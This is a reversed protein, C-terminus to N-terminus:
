SREKLVQDQVPKLKNQMSIAFAVSYAIAMWWSLILFNLFLAPYLECERDCPKYALSPNITAM